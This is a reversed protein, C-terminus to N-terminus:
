YLEIINPMLFLALTATGFNLKYNYNNFIYVIILIFLLSQFVTILLTAGDWFLELKSYLYQFLIINIFIIFINMVFTWNTSMEDIYNENLIMAIINAHVVVGYMDQNARGVYKDNLPTFFRDITSYEQFSPGMYGMVVIKDKIQEQMVKVFESDDNFVDPIDLAGFTIKANSPGSKGATNINGYYNIIETDKNREIIKNTSSPKYINAIRAAFSLMYTSDGLKQRLFHNRSTNFEGLGEAIMDVYAPTTVNKFIPLAYHVSDIKELSDNEILECGLVVNGARKFADALLSDSLRLDAEELSDESHFERTYRVDIGIVKPKCKSIRNVQEAVERRSLDGFNVLVIRDDVPPNERLKSFVLDTLEFDAFVEAIPNFVDLTKLYKSESIESLAYLFIMGFLTTGLADWIVSRKFNSM